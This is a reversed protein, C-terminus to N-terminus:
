IYDMEHKTDKWIAHLDKKENILNKLENTHSIPYTSIRVKKNPVCKEIAENLMTYFKNVSGNVDCEFMTDWDVDLITSLMEYNALRCNELPKNESESDPAETCM